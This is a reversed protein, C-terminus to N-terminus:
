DQLGAIRKRMFCTPGEISEPSKHRIDYSNGLKSSWEGNLEQVAAHLWDDANLAYLAVKRYGPELEGNDCPEYGLQAFVQKLAEISEGDDQRAGPPWYYGPAPLM